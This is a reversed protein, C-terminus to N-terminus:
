HIVCILCMILLPVVTLLLTVIIAKVKGDDDEETTDNGNGGNVTTSNKSLSLVRTLGKGYLLISAIKTLKDADGGVLEGGYCTMQIRVSQADAIQQMQEETIYYGVNLWRDEPFIVSVQYPLVERGDVTLWVQNHQYDFCNGSAAEEFADYLCRFFIFYECSDEYRKGREDFRLVSGKGRCLSVTSSVHPHEPETDDRWEIYEELVTLQKNVIKDGLFDDLSKYEPKEM